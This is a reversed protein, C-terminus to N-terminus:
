IEDCDEELRVCILSRRFESLANKTNDLDIVAEPNSNLVKAIQNLNSASRSLESYAQLDLKAPKPTIKRNIGIERLFASISMNELKASIELKELEEDSVYVSIRKSRFRGSPLLSRGRHKKPNVISEILKKNKSLFEVFDDDVDLNFIIEPYVKFREIWYNNEDFLEKSVLCNMELEELLKSLITSTAYQKCSESNLHREMEHQDKRNKRTTTTM